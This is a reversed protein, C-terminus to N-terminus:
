GLEALALAALAAKTTATAPIEVEAETLAKKIQTVSKGLWPNTEASEETEGIEQKLKETEAPKETEGFLATLKSGHSRQRDRTSVTTEKFEVTALSARPFTKPTPKGISKYLQLVATAFDESVFEGSLPSDAFTFTCVAFPKENTFPTPRVLPAPSCIANVMAATGEDEIEWPNEPLQSLVERLQSYMDGSLCYVANYSYDGDRDAGTRSPTIQCRYGEGDCFILKSTKNLFEIYM